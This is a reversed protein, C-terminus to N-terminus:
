PPPCASGRASRDRSDSGRASWPSERVCRCARIGGYQVAPHAHGLTERPCRTTMRPAHQESPQARDHDREPEGDREQRAVQRRVPVDRAAGLRSLGLPDEGPLERGVLAADVLQDDNARFGLGDGVRREAREGFLEHRLRLRGSDDEASRQEGGRPVPVRNQDPDLSLGVDVLEQRHDLLAVPAVAEADRHGALPREVMVEVVERLVVELRALELEAQRRGQDHQQTTKPATTAPSIGSRIAIIAITTASPSQPGIAASNESETKTTFMSVPM